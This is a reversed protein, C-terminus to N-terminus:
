VRRLENSHGQLFSIGLFLSALLWGFGVLMEANSERLFGGYIGNNGRVSEVTHM